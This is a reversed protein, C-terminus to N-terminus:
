KIKPLKKIEDETYLLLGLVRAHFNNWFKMPYKLHSAFTKAGVLGAVITWEAMDAEYGIENDGKKYLILEENEYVKVKKM